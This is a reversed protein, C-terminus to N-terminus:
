CQVRAQLPVGSLLSYVMEHFKVTTDRHAPGWEQRTLGESGMGRGLHSMGNGLTQIWPCSEPFGRKKSYKGGVGDAVELFWTDDLRKVRM